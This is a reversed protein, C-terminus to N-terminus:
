YNKRLKKKMAIKIVGHIPIIDMSAFYNNQLKIHYKYTVITTLQPLGFSIFHFANNSVDSFRALLAKFLNSNDLHCRFEYVNTTIREAGNGNGINKSHIDFAPIIVANNSDNEDIKTLIKTEEETMYVVMLVEELRLRTTKQLSVTPSIYKFWGISDKITTLM